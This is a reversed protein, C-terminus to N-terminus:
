ALPLDSWHTVARPGLGGDVPLVAALNIFDNATLAHVGVLKITMDFWGAWTYDRVDVFTDGGEVHYRIGLEGDDFQETGIFKLSRGNPRIDLKDGTAFDTVTDGYDLPLGLYEGYTGFAFVDSGGGGTMTDAGIGGNLVDNGTAGSLHDDGSYGYLTNPAASGVITDDRSGTTANRFGVITASYGFGDNLVQGKSLDVSMGQDGSVSVPKGDVIRTEYGRLEISNAGTGGDLTTGRVSSIDFVDTGGYGRVTDGAGGTFSNATDSGLLTDANYTGSVSEISVLTEANGFGDNAVKGTRLDVIAGQKAAFDAFSATDDGDGGDLRDIGAGGRLFDLGAGGFLSDNGAEGHLTDHGDDGWLNDLGVGGYLYDTGLGGWMLDNGADGRLEDEGDDGYLRDRADGGWLRDDDAGGYIQDTGGEGYLTDWGAYGYITDSAATGRYNDDRDTGVFKAM